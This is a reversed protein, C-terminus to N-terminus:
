KIDELYNALAQVQVDSLNFNPMLCGPKVAQPNKLWRFLNTPSNALVGAGLIKREAVHTLDPAAGASPSSVGRIAHCSICTQTTFIKLGARDLDTTPAPAARKQEQLWTAFDAPSEMVVAALMWAHEVGCYEVCNGLFRGPKEANLWIHNTEGPILQIKRALEPMWFDHIVDASEMRVLWNTGTPMHIENATVVGAKPYRIEWWFQHGIIVLDPEQNAPPVPDADRMGRATLVFLWIVILTPGLTWLIELKRNGFTQVPEGQGARHRFRILGVAVMGIVILMIVACVILVVLFLRSIAETQVSATDFVPMYNNPMTGFWKCEAVMTGDTAMALWNAKEDIVLQSCNFFLPIARDM